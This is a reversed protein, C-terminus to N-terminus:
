ILIKIIKEVWKKDLLDTIFYKWWNKEERFDFWIKKDPNIWFYFSYKESTQKKHKQCLEKLENTPITILHPEISRKWSKKQEHIVYVLFIFYDATSKDITDKKLFFWWTSWKGYKEIEKPKPEYARSWKVQITLTKKSDINMLVLDIDKMQWNMPMLVEINNNTLNRLIWTVIAEDVNLSRFNKYAVGM